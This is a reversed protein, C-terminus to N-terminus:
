IMIISINTTPYHSPSTLFEGHYPTSHTRMSRITWMFVIITNAKQELKYVMASFMFYFLITYNLFIVCAVQLSGFGIREPSEMKKIIWQGISTGPQFNDSSHLIYRMPLIFRTIIVKDRFYHAVVLIFYYFKSAVVRYAACNKKERESEIRQQWVKNEDEKRGKM